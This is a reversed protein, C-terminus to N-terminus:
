RNEQPATPRPNRPQKARSRCREPRLSKMYEILAMVNEESVLGQFTPMIPQYGDVMKVQPTLISERLYGRRGRGDAGNALREVQSRVQEGAVARPRTGDTLHCTM